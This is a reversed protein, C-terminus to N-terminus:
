TTHDHGSSEPRRHNQADDLARLATGLCRIVHRWERAEEAHREAADADGIHRSAREDARCRNSRQACHRLYGLITDEDYGCLAAITMGDPEARDDVLDLVGDLGAPMDSPGAAGPRPRARTCRVAIETASERIFTDWIELGATLNAPHFASCEVRHSAHVRGDEVSLCIGPWRRGNAAVFDAAGSDSVHDTLVTYCEIAAVDRIPRLWSKVPDTPLPIEGHRDVHVPVGTLEELADIVLRLLQTSDHALTALEITPEDPVTDDSSPRLFVPHVVEWVERLARVVIASLKDVQRRGCDIVFDGHAGRLSRMGLESMSRVQAPRRDDDALRDAHVRCRYRRSPTLCCTLLPHADSTGDVPMRSVVLEDGSRLGALHDALDIRYRRWAAELEDDFDALTM